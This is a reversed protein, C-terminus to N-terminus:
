TKDRSKNKLEKDVLVPGKVRMTYSEYIFSIGPKLQRNLQSNLKTSLMQKDEASSMFPQLMQDIKEKDAYSVSEKFVSNFVIHNCIKKLFLEDISSYFDSQFKKLM